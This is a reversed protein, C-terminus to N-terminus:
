EGKESGASRNNWLISLACGSVLMSCIFLWGAGNFSAASYIWNWLLEGALIVGVATLAGGILSTLASKVTKWFKNGDCEGLSFNFKKGILAAALTGLAIGILFWLPWEDWEPFEAELLEKGWKGGASFLTPLAVFLAGLFLADWEPRALVFSLIKKM